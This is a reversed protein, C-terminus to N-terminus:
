ASRARRAQRGRRPRRPHRAAPRDRGHLQQGRVARRPRLHIGRRADRQDEDGIRRHRHPGGGRHRRQPRRARVPKRHRVRRSRRREGRPGRGRRGLRIRAGQGEQDRRPPGVDLEGVRGDGPLRPVRRRHRIPYPARGRSLDRRRAGERQGQAAPGAQRHLRPGVGLDGGGPEHCRGAARMRPDRGHRRRAPSGIGRRDRRAPPGGDRLVQARLGDQRAGARRGQGREIRHGARLDSSQKGLGFLGM